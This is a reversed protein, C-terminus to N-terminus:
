VAAPRLLGALIQIPAALQTTGALERRRVPNGYGGLSMAGGADPMGACVPARGAAPDNRFRM